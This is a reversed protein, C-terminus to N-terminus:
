HLVRKRKGSEKRPVEKGDYEPKADSAEKNAFELLTDAHCLDGIACWCALNKGKLEDLGTPNHKLLIGLFLRHKRVCTERDGDAGLVFPNGFKGPRACNITGPPLKFGRRRSLQIRVPKTKPMPEIRQTPYSSKM